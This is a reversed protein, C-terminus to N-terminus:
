EKRNGVWDDMCECTGDKFKPCNEGCNGSLGYIECTSLMAGNINGHEYSELQCRLKDEETANELFVNLEKENFKRGTYKFYKNWEKIKRASKM